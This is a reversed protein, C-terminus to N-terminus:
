QSSGSMREIMTRTLLEPSPSILFDPVVAATLGTTSALALYVQGCFTWGYFYGFGDGTINGPAGVQWPGTGARIDFLGQGNLVQGGPQIQPFIEAAAFSITTGYLLSDKSWYFYETPGFLTDKYATQFSFHVRYFDAGNAPNWTFVLNEDFAITDVQSTDHSTILGHGPMRINARAIATDGNSKQYIVELRASDEAMIPFDNVQFYSPPSYGLEIGNLSVQPVSTVNYVSVYVQATTDPFNGMIEVSGSIYAQPVAAPGPLGTDGVCGPMLFVIALLACVLGSCTIKRSM